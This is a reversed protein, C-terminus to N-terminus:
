KLLRFEICAQTQMEPPKPVMNDDYWDWWHQQSPDRKRGATYDDIKQALQAGRLRTIFQKMRLSNGVGPARAVCFGVIRDLDDTWVGWGESACTRKLTASHGREHEDVADEDRVISHFYGDCKDPTFRGCVREEVLPTSCEAQWKALDQADLTGLPSPEPGSGRCGAVLVSLM